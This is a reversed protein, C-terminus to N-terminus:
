CKAGYVRGNQLNRSCWCLSANQKSSIFTHIIMGFFFFLFFFGVVAASVQLARGTSVWWRAAVGQRTSM